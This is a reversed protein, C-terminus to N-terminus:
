SAHPDGGPMVAKLSSTVWALQQDTLPEETIETFFDEVLTLPTKAKLDHRVLQHEIERGNLREVQLLHPYVQRLQNMMNPIVARDTLQLALYDERQITQYFEPTLFEAFSGTLEKVEHLPNLPKFTFKGATTDVLYVGKTQDKESLSYKLPSGSYRANKAQLADKGHLHGLAVYDFPTLLESAIGDLGGIELNTESDTKLSGAVFFHSVLVHRKTPDFNETITVIVKELAQQITKLTDDAFYLRADIPEFYPLLYFATDQLVVPEFAEKLQTHLYFNTEKFWPAGTALRTASDHNGSIVLLPFGATLNFEAITQNVLRISEESPVSRDYVDGAIVIADVAEQKALQLIKQLIDKQEALLDYGHLKKGIHWDATHLFKVSDGTRSISDKGGNYWAQHM